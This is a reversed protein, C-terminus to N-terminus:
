QARCEFSEAEDASGAGKYVTRQPYACVPRTRTLKGDVRKSALIREPPRGREVWDAIAGIWDVSDPGAGGGCHQVGPLLFFRGSDKLAPTKALAGDYYDITSRANLAADSWGHWLLLKGRATFTSLDPNDANLISRVVRTDREWTAFDYTRYDWKPDGFVFYKFFETAFAWQRPATEYYAQVLAKAVVATRHVALHGFNVQRELDHLAWSGDLGDAQHGTDTGVTAYGENVSGLAQNELSGVFGGGGGMVFRQNWADPLLLEFGIERGITGSVKCHPVIIRGSPAAATAATIAVDPWRVATLSACATSAVRIPPPADQGRVPTAALATSAALVLAARWSGLVKPRCACTLM